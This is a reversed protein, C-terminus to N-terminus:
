SILSLTLQSTSSAQKLMSTSSQMLMQATSSAAFEMAYDTDMIRGTAAQTNTLMNAANNSAHELTNAVAGAASRFSAWADIASSMDEIAESAHATLIDLLDDDGYKFSPLTQILSERFNATMVDSSSDGIQFNLPRMFKDSSAAGTDVFLYEGNFTTSVVEWAQDFMAAFESQLADKDAKTSSGDAAQIALDHMRSFIDVLSGAVSDAVQMLSIGNQINRMAVTMGSTQAALRTAIQLGAADDMASNVRYGTSLRTAAISQSVGARTLANQASLSAVNTRMSLM